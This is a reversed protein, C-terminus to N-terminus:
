QRFPLTGNHGVTACLHSVLCALLLPPVRGIMTPPRIYQQVCHFRRGLHDKRFNDAPLDALLKTCSPVDSVEFSINPHKAVQRRLDRVALGEVMAGRADACTGSVSVPLARQSSAQM